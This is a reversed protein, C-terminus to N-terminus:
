RVEAAFAERIDRALKPIDTLEFFESRGSLSTTNRSQWFSQADNRMALLGCGYNTLLGVYGNWNLRPTTNM